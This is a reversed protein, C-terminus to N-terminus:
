TPGTIMSTWDLSSWSTMTGKKTTREIKNSVKILEDILEFNRQENELAAEKCGMCYCRGHKDVVYRDDKALKKLCQVCMELESM